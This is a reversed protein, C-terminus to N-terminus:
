CKPVSKVQCTLLWWHKTWLLSGTNLKITRKCFVSQMSKTISEYPRKSLYPMYIMGKIRKNSTKHSKTRSLDLTKNYLSWTIVIKITDSRMKSMRPRSHKIIILQSNLMRIKTRSNSNSRSKYSIRSSKIIKSNRKSLPRPAKLGSIWNTPRFMRKPSRNISVLKYQLYHELCCKLFMRKNRSLARLILIQVRIQIRIQNKPSWYNGKILWM